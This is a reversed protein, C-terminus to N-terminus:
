ESKKPRYPLNAKGQFYNAAKDIAAM